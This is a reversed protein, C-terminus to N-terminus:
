GQGTFVKNWGQSLHRSWLQDCVHELELVSLLFHVNELWWDREYQQPTLAISICHVVSLFHSPDAVPQSSGWLTDM